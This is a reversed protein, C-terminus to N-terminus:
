RESQNYRDGEARDETAIKTPTVSSSTHTMLDADLTHRKLETPQSWSRKLLVYTLWCTAIGFPIALFGYFMSNSDDISGPSNMEVIIGVILGGTFLGAYYSVVGLIAFAWANKNHAQALRYFARGAFILLVIGLM